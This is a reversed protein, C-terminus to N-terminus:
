LAAPVPTLRADPGLDFMGEPYQLADEAKLLGSITSETLVVVPQAGAEGQHIQIQVAFSQGDSPRLTERVRTFRPQVGARFKNRPVVCFGREWLGGNRKRLRFVAPNSLTERPNGTTGAGRLTRRSAIRDLAPRQLRAPGM